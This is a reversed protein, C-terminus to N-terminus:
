NCLCSQNQAAIIPRGGCRNGIDETRSWAVVLGCRGIERFLRYERVPRVDNWKGQPLGSLKPWARRRRQGAGLVCGGEVFHLRQADCGRGLLSQDAAEPVSWNLVVPVLDRLSGRLRM